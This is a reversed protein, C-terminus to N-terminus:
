EAPPRSEELARSVLEEFSAVDEVVSDSSRDLVRYRGDERDLAFRSLGSEGFCLYRRNAELDWWALNADVFGQISLDERGAVPSTRSAYLVLGNADLGDAQRLLDCYAEPVEAGLEARARERLDEVDRERAPPQAQLANAALWGKVDALLQQYM